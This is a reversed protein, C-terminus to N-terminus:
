MLILEWIDLYLSKKDHGQADQVMKPTIELTVDIKM